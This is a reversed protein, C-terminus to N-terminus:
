VACSYVEQICEAASQHLWEYMYADVTGGSSMVVRVLVRRYEDPHGELRDVRRLTRSDVLYVEGWLRCRGPARVAYPIYSEVTLTYGSVYGEGILRSASLYNHNWCGRKLTGYVFLYVARPM